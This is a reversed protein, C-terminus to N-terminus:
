LFNTVTERIEDYDMDMCELFPISETGYVYVANGKSVVERKPSFIRSIRIEDVEM